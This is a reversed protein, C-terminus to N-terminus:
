ATSPEFEVNPDQAAGYTAENFEVPRICYGISPFGVPPPHALRLPHKFLDAPIWRSGMIFTVSHRLSSPRPSSSSSQMGPTPGLARNLNSIHSHPVPALYRTIRIRAM